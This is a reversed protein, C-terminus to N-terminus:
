LVSIFREMDQFNVLGTLRVVGMATQTRVWKQAWSQSGWECFKGPIFYSSLKSMFDSREDILRGLLENEEADIRPLRSKSVRM